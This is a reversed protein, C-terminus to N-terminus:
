KKIFDMFICTDNPYLPSFDGADDGFNVEYSFTKMFREVKSSKLSIVATKWVSQFISSPWFDWCHYSLGSCSSFRPVVKRRTSKPCPASTLKLPTLLLGPLRVRLGKVRPNNCKTYIVGFGWTSVAAAAIWHMFGSLPSQLWQCFIHLAQAAGRPAPM